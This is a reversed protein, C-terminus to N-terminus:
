SLLAGVHVPGNEVELVPTPRDNSTTRHPVRAYLVESLMRFGLSGLKPFSISPPILSLDFRNGGPGDDHAGGPRGDRRGAGDM